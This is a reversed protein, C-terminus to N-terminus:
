RVALRGGIGGAPDLDGGGFPLRNIWLADCHLDARMRRVTAPDRTWVSARARWPSLNAQDIADAVTRARFIPLVPGFVEERVLKMGPAARAILTPEVFFGASTAPGSPRAGGTLIEAGMLRAEEVQAEIRDRLEASHLPGMRVYPPEAATLGDGPQLVKVRELLEAVFRDHLAEVVYLRKVASCVQGANRFRGAVAADVANAIEADECVIMPDSGGLDLLLDAAAARAAATLEAGTADSGSLHIRTVVDDALLAPGVVSGRGTVVNLVGPPLGAENLLQVVRLAALPTTYAPKIVVTGGELLPPGIKKAMLGVPFNWAVLGVSVGAAAGRSRPRAHGHRSRLQPIRGDPTSAALRAFARMRVVFGEIEAVAEPLPKGEERTLLHALGATEAAVADAGRAILDIRGALPVQRWREVAAGASRIAARADRAVALPASGALEGNAPNFVSYRGAQVSEVGRGDLIM